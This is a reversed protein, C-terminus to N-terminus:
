SKGVAKVLMLYVPFHDSFGGIYNDYDFTRFPYGKFQGSKQILYPKNHVQAKYFRYGEQREKVLAQSLILQDFLSWADQYAMTGIGQKFFTDMPNFFGGKKIKSKDGAADLVQKVSPSNPDDNLDGMVIVKANPDITLLSDKVNKCVLAAANRYPATAAEGGRRSPWHNVLVHLPEGDLLGSVYLIDRTFNREGDSGYIVLPIAQSGLVKFYKPQYILGVDIGREDPSDYHVIEYKRNALKEQKVLDELVLRNEIEAVGLIAVGDPTMDTGLESIVRSLNGLKEQYVETTWRRQGNPLFESDDTDPSDITDFLNELNYFGICAVKYSQKQSFLSQFCLLLLFALFTHKMIRKINQQLVLTVPHAIVM